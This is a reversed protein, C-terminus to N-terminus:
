QNFMLKRRDPGELIFINYMGVFRSAIGNSYKESLEKPTFNTTIHTKIGIRMLDYRVSIIHPVLQDSIGFHTVTENELGLDDICYTFPKEAKTGYSNLKPNLLYYDLGAEGEKRFAGVIKEIRHLLFPGKELRLYDRKFHSMLEMLYSKGTGIGGCILISKNFRDNGKEFDPDKICYQIIKYIVEKNYEDIVLPKYFYKISLTNLAELYKNFNKM